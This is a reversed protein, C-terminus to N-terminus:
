SRAAHGNSASEVLLYGQPRRALIGERLDISIKDLTILHWGYSDFALKGLIWHGFVCIEILEGESLAKGNFELRHLDSNYTFQDNNM